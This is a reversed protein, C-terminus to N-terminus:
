LAVVCFSQRDYLEQQTVEVLLCLAMARVKRHSAGFGQSVRRLSSIQFDKAQQQFAACRDVTLVIITFDRQQSYNFTITELRHLHKKVCASIYLSCVVIPGGDEHQRRT